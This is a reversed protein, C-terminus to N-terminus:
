QKGNVLYLSSLVVSVEKQSAAAKKLSRWSTMGLTTIRDATEFEELEEAQESYLLLSRM